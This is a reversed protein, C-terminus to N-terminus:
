VGGGRLRGRGRVEWVRSQAYISLGFLAGARLYVRFVAWGEGSALAFAAQIWASLSTSAAFDAALASIMATGEGLLSGAPPQSHTSSLTGGGTIYEYLFVRM